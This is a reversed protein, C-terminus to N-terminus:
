LKQPFSCFFSFHFTVMIPDQGQSHNEINNNMQNMQDIMCDVVYTQPKLLTPAMRENVWSQELFNLVQGPTEGDDDEDESSSPDHNLEKSM